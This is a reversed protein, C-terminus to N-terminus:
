ESKTKRRGLLYGLAGGLSMAGLLVMEFYYNAIMPILGNVVHKLGIKTLFWAWLNVFGFLEHRYPIFVLTAVIGGLAAGISCTAITAHRRVILLSVGAVVLLALLIWHIGAFDVKLM